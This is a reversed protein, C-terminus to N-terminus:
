LNQVYRLRYCHKVPLWTINERNILRLVLIHNENVIYNDGVNQHIEYLMGEGSHIELIKKNQGDFGTVSDDTTINEILKISEDHLRIKTGEIFCRNININIPINDYTITIQEDITYSQM